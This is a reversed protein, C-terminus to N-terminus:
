GSKSDSGDLLKVGVKTIRNEENLERITLQVNGLTLQDGVVMRRHFKQSFFAHLSMTLEQPNLHGLPYFSAVDALSLEGNLTFDGFFDSSNLSRAKGGAALVRSIEDIHQVKAVVLVHDDELLKPRESPQLWEGDRILGVFELPVSWRLEYWYHDCAPSRESIEYSWLELPDNSGVQDLAMRRDPEAELPVELKLWRALPALTWGQLILSVLVVVFAVDFFLEQGPLGSLWPYLALIIPVAGRLGVWSIFFQERIPFSFPALSVVVALPRVIFIMLGAISLSLGLNEILHSPTVLLGLILFMMIQSLWALGDQVQLIHMLQPLRANGIKYGMLYVALFGSGGISSTLAFVVVASAAALLPFFAFQATIKEAMLVFLRGGFWGAIFGITLQQAVELGVVTFSFAEGSAILTTMTMTLIVAMPDNTGSEIELTSAVRQKIKLNQSQFIGFVAAADTSSLIAGILLAIPWSLDFLWVIGLATLTSTLAVGLTALSIAPWLAVRFRERKTRMGGDFIIIVLALSGILFAIEPQDFGIGLLGEEGALMGVVLFVLLLPAGLRSSVVAALISVLLLSGMLLMIGNLDAM